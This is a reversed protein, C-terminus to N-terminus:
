LGPRPLEGALGQAALARAALLMVGGSVVNHGGLVVPVPCQRAARTFERVEADKEHRRGGLNHVSPNTLRGTVRSLDRNFGGRSDQSKM